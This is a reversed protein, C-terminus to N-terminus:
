DQEEDSEVDIIAANNVVEEEIVVFHPFESSHCETYEGKYNHGYILYLGTLVSRMLCCKDTELPFSNDGNVTAQSLHVADARILM